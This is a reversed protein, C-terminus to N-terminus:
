VAGKKLVVVPQANKRITIRMDRLTGRLTRADACNGCNWAAFYLTGNGGDWPYLVRKLTPLELYFPLFRNIARAIRSYRKKESM